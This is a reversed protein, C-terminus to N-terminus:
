HHRQFHHLPSHLAFPLFTTVTVSAFVVLLNPLTRDDIPSQCDVIPSQPYRWWSELCNPPACFDLSSSISWAFNKVAIPLLLGHVWSAALFPAFFSNRLKSNEVKEGTAPRWVEHVASLPNASLCLVANLAPGRQNSNKTMNSKKAGQYLLPQSADETFIKYFFEFSFNTLHAM